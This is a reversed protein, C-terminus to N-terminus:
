NWDLGADKDIDSIDKTRKPVIVLEFSGDRDRPVSINMEGMSTKVSKDIDTEVIKQQRLKKQIVTM